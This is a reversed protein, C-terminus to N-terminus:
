GAQGARGIIDLDVQQLYPTQCWLLMRSFWNVASFIELSGIDSEELLEIERGHHNRWFHPFCQM